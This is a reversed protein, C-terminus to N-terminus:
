DLAPLTTGDPLDAKMLCNSQLTWEGSRARGVSSAAPIVFEQGPAVDYLYAVVKGDGDADTFESKLDAPEKLLVKGDQVNTIRHWKTFDENVLWANEYCGGSVFYLVNSTAVFKGEPDISSVAVKGTRPSDEGLGIALRGENAKADAIRYNKDGFLITHGTLTSTQSCRLAPALALRNEQFDAGEVLGNVAPGSKVSLLGHRIEGEGSIFVSKVARSPDARVVACTGRISLGGIRVTNSPDDALYVLDTGHPGKIEVLGERIRRVRLPEDGTRFPQLVCAFRSVLGDDGSNRLLIYKLSEPNGPRRPPNANALVVEDL